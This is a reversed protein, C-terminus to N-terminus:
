DLRLSLEYVDKKRWGSVGAIAAAAQKRPQGRNIAERLADRVAAEDWVAAEARAGGIVLTIEGRIRDVGFHARAASAPGRWIEEYLKTLERAVVLQRDGFVGEVDALLKLLRHPAEYLILTYPLDRVEALAARRAAAQRPLFGLFLFADTPLGSSVLATIAASPGPIPSVPIGADHAAQV